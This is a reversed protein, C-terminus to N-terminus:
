AAMALELPPALRSLAEPSFYRNGVAWEDSREDLITGVVRLLAQRTPFIGVVQCHKTVERKVRDLSTTAWIRDRHESPFAHSTLIDDASERVMAVLAPYEGAYRRCIDEIAERAAQLDSQALVSRLNTKVFGQAAEPVCGAASRLFEERCRQWRAEPFVETVAQKVGPHAASTVLRVGSLGRRAMGVLFDRWFDSAGPPCIDVGVVEREGTTRVGVAIVAAQSVVRGHERVKQVTTDLMLYPYRGDLPRARFSRVQADLDRCAKLVQEKSVSDIGLAEALGDIGRTGSGQVYAEQIVSLLAWDQRRRPSQLRPFFHSFSSTQLRAPSPRGRSARKRFWNPTSLTISM